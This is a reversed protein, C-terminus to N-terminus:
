VRLYDMFLLLFRSIPREKITATTASADTVHLFLTAGGGNVPRQLKHLGFATATLGELNTFGHKDFPADVVLALDAADPDIIRKIIPFCPARVREKIIGICKRFRGAHPRGRGRLFGILEYQFDTFVVVRSDIVLGSRKYYM